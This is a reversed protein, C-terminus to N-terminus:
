ILPIDTIVYKIAGGVLQGLNRSVIWLALYKGRAGTPALSMIAGAEAVYWCGTGLGSIAGAFILYKTFTLRAPDAKM